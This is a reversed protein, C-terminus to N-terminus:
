EITEHCGRGFCSGSAAMSTKQWEAESYVFACNLFGSRNAHRARFKKRAEDENAAFVEAWGGYHPFQPDTGFTFYFKM